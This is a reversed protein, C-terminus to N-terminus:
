PNLSELIAAEDDGAAQEIRALLLDVAVRILTNDTVRVAGTGKARNLRRAHLTLENQQDERLRTEKRVLRLYAPLEPPTVVPEAARPRQHSTSVPVRPTSSFALSGDLPPATEPAASTEASAGATSDEVNGLLAGLSQRAM